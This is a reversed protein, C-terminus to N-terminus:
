SSFLGMMRLKTHNENIQVTIFSLICVLLLLWVFYIVMLCTGRYIGSMENWIFCIFLILYVPLSSTTTPTATTLQLPPSPNMAASSASFTKASKSQYSGNRTWRVILVSGRDGPRDKGPRYNSWCDLCVLLCVPFSFFAHTHSQKHIPGDPQRKM